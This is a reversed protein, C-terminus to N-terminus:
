PQAGSTSGSAGLGPVTRYQFSQELQQRYPNPDLPTSRKKLQDDPGWRYVQCETTRDRYFYYSTDPKAAAARDSLNWEAKAVGLIGPGIPGNFVFSYAYLENQNFRGNACHTSLEADLVGVEWYPLQSYHVSVDRRQADAAPAICILLIALALHRRLM